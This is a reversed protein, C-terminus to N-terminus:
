VVSKRDSYSLEMVSRKKVSVGVSDLEIFHGFFLDEIDVFMHMVLGIIHILDFFALDDDLIVDVPDM